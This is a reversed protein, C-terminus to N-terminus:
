MLFLSFDSGCSALSEDGMEPLLEPACGDDETTLSFDDCDPKMEAEVKARLHRVKATHADGFPFAKEEFIDQERRFRQDAFDSGMYKRASGYFFRRRREPLARVLISVPTVFSQTVMGPVEQNCDNIEKESMAGGQGARLMDNHNAEASRRGPLDGGGTGGYVVREPMM